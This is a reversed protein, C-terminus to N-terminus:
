KEIASADKDTKPPALEELEVWGECHGGDPLDGAPVVNRVKFRRYGTSFEDGKRFTTTGDYALKFLEEYEKRDSDPVHEGLDDREWSLTMAAPEEDLFEMSRPSFISLYVDRRGFKTSDIVTQFYRSQWCNGPIILSSKQPRDNALCDDPVRTLWLSSDRLSARYLQGDFLPMISGDNLALDLICRHWSWEANTNKLDFYLGAKYGWREAAASNYRYVHCKPWTKDRAPIIGPIEIPIEVTVPPYEIDLAFQKPFVGSVEFQKLDLVRLHRGCREMRSEDIEQLGDAVLFAFVIYCIM